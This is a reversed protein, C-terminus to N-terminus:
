RKWFQPTFLILVTYLELRGVLMAACLSWKVYEPYFAYNRAPGIKGFGPGINGLTALATSFSTTIDEGSSAVIFSVFLLMMIYLFFFGSVAYVIDKKVIKGGFTLTFIGRPHLLYKMEIIGQKMLTVLRIVKVGGGTSGSCGGVFMLVFLIIQSFYPWAEYDVTAYGTTTMISAAQFSAFRITEGATRYNNSYLNISIATTAVLFIIIYARFETDRLLSKARGTMLRYYLVFNIGALLMFVTIVGDIFPSAYHGVSGNKTSFGGTAMTGFTHTLADFLDMGGAMLLATELASLGVYFLWLIKATQTIRPTIKDVTPGPAEAKILQLGGIGLIPLIAVTLVVIGMGGLWHTMSRWFLLSRPLAEIDVLISAGTTSFGSITEFFADTYVPIAGSLYFPLSGVLAALVWSLSVFMFGDRTTMDGAPTRRFLIFCTTCIILTGSITVMFCTLISYEGLYAAIGAPAVMFISIIILVISLTKALLRVNM